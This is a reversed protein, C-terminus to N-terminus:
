LHYLMNVFIKSIKVIKQGSNYTIFTLLVLCQFPKKLFQLLSLISKARACWCQVRSSQFFTTHDSSVLILLSPDSPLFHTQFFGPSPKLSLSTFSVLFNPPPERIIHPQM